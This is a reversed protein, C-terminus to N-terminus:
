FEDEPYDVQDYLRLTENWDRKRRRRISFYKAKSAWRGKVRGKEKGGTEAFYHEPDTPLGLTHVALDMVRAHLRERVARMDRLRTRGMRLLRVLAAFARFASVADELWRLSMWMLAPVCVATIPAIPFTLLVSGGWVCLGSIFGYILKYQAIEDWTDWIPGTRKFRSVAIFTTIFVPLWLLLGPLSISFLFISWALRVCIRYIIVHPPLPRRIRDDKVGWLSLQNQYEKLDSALRRIKEDERLADDKNVIDGDSSNEFVPREALKFAELFTRVVRVYDGLSMTTGLPAYIRAASKASRIMDWSPADFTGSSIQQHFRTTLARITGHDVPALLEPDSKPTFKMPPHFTILVDSRFHQRHMYTISCTLVCIEFEPDDRNRSLTDSVLRAVGTKLPAITPHYRSMGEPFLCVADGYELAEILKVMVASNDAQGDPFDKRRKIPVTGASEILWSTFTKKGFQTSKATLRLLNRRKSPIATVLLLADTLSNSHNACVICPVGRPPILHANEVVITGYFIKLVFKFLLRIFFFSWPASSGKRM